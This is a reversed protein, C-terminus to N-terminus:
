IDGINMAVKEGLTLAEATDLTQATLWDVKYKLYFRRYIESDDSGNARHYGAWTAMIERLAEISENMAELKVAFRKVMGVAYYQNVHNGKLKARYEATQEQFPKDVDDVAKRMEALTEPSLEFLDGDVFEVHQRDSPKPKPIREGCYPCEKLYKEYSLGCEVGKCVRLQPVDESDGRKERRELSWVKPADPLGHLKVNGAHDAYIGFKKGPARRLMRGFRQSFLGYSKTPYADQVVEIAPLDFGEDFLAVNILVDIKRNAFDRISNVRITDLTTGDLAKAKVGASIFQEELKKATSVSPVFVVSLMGKFKKLYFEVVDGTVKTGDGDVLSSHEIADRVQNVNFDGTSKSVDVNAMHANLDSDPQYIRYETLHVNDILYRMTPGTVMSDFIGDVWRGLGAGDARCPTATLGLGKANTFLDCAKMWKNRKGGNAACHHAEDTVWLTVTPAYRRLEDSMDKPPRKGKLAGEPIGWVQVAEGWYGDCRPGYFWKTGDHRLEVYEDGDVGNGLRSMITDVGAVSCRATPDYYSVGIEIMHQAVIMRIIKTPGLIRHRIGNKALALSIQSVLEQRHAIVCSAGNHDQVIASLCRTKGAGTPMVGLVNLNGEGWSKHVDHYFEQQYDRLGTDTITRRVYEAIKSLIPHKIM